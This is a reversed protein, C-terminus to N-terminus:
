IYYVDIVDGVTYSNGVFMYVISGDSNVNLNCRSDTYLLNGQSICQTASANYGFIFIRQEYALIGETRQSRLDAVRASTGNGNSLSIESKVGRGTLDAVFLLKNITKNITFSTSKTNSSTDLRGMYTWALNTYINNPYLNTRNDVYQKTAAGLNVTPDANLILNGSM